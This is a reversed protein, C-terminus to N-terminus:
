LDEEGLYVEGIQQMGVYVTNERLNQRSQARISLQYGLYGVTVAVVAILFLRTPYRMVFARVGKAADVAKMVGFRQETPVEPLGRVFAIVQSLSRFARNHLKKHMLRLEQPYMDVEGSYKLEYERALIGFAYAAADRYFHDNRHMPIFESFDLFYNLSVLGQPTLNINRGNILLRGIDGELETEALAALFRLAVEKRKQFTGAYISQTATLLNEQQYAFVLHLADKHTFSGIFDRNQGFLGNVAIRAAIEKAVPTSSISVVTCYAGTDRKADIAVNVECAENKLVTRVTELEMNLASIM